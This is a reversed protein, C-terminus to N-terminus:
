ALEADDNSPLWADVEKLAEIFRDRIDRSDMFDSSATMVVADGGIGAALWDAAIAPMDEPAIPQLWYRIGAERVDM